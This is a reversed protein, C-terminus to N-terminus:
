PELVSSSLMERLARRAAALDVPEKIPFFRGRPGSRPVVLYTTDLEWSV